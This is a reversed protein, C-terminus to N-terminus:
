VTNWSPFEPFSLGDALTTSDTSHAPGSSGGAYTLTTTALYVCPTGTPIPRTINALMHGSVQSIKTKESNSVARWETAPQVERM